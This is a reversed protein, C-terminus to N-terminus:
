PSITGKKRDKKAIKQSSGNEFTLQARRIGGSMIGDHSIFDRKFIINCLIM